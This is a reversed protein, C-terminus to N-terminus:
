ALKVKTYGFREKELLELGQSNKSLVTGAQATVMLWTEGARGVEEKEEEGGRWLLPQTNKDEAAHINKNLLHPNM